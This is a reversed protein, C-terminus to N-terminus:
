QLELFTKSTGKEEKSGTSVTIIKSYDQQPRQTEKPDSDIM